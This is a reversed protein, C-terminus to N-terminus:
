IRRACQELYVIDVHGHFHPKLANLVHNNFQDRYKSNMFEDYTMSQIDTLAIEIQAVFEYRGNVVFPIQKVRSNNNDPTLSIPRHITVTFPDTNDVDESIPSHTRDPHEIM